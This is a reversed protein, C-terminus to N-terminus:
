AANPDEIGCAADVANSLKNVATEVTVEGGEGEEVLCGQTASDTDETTTTDLGTGPADTAVADAEAGQGESIDAVDFLGRDEPAAGDSGSSGLDDYDVSDMPTTQQRSILPPRTVPASAAAPASEASSTFNSAKAVFVGPASKHSFKEGGLYTGEENFKKFYHTKCYLTTGSKTFNQITIQCRCDSCKACEKHYTIGDLVIQPDNSYVSQACEACKTQNGANSSFMKMRDKVCGSAVPPDTNGVGGSVVAPASRVSEQIVPASVSHAATPPPPPSYAGVKSKQAFKEGGLYTGQESFKKFYHTKCLLNNGTKTFNSLTIQCKCEECKACTKHFVSGDLNIQM